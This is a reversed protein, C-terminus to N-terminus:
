CCLSPGSRIGQGMSVKVWEGHRPSAAVRAAASNASAPIGPTGQSTNTVPQMTAPARLDAASMHASHEDVPASSSVQAQQLGCSLSAFLLLSFLSHRM